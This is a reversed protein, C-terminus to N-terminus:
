SINLDGQFYQPGGPFILTWWFINIEGLFYQYGWSINLDGLFYQRVGPFISTGSSINVTM